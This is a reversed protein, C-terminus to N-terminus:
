SAVSGLSLHEEIREVRKQIKLNDKDLFDVAYKLDKQIKNLKIEINKVRTNIERLESVSRVMNMKMDAQLENKLDESEAETEERIIKRVEKLDDKTLM